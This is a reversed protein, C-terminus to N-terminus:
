QLPDYTLYTHVTNAQLGHLAPVKHNHGKLAGAFFCSPFPTTAVFSVM